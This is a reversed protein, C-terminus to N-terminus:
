ICKKQPEGSQKGCFDTLGTKEISSIHYILSMKPVDVLCMMGIGGGKQRLKDM